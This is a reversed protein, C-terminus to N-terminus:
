EVPESFGCYNKRAIINLDIKCISESQCSVFNNPDFRCYINLKCIDFAKRM